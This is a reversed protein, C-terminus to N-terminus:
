TALVGTSKRLPGTDSGQHAVATNIGEVSREVDEARFSGLLRCEAYLRRDAVIAYGQCGSNPRVSCTAGNRRPLSQLANKRLLPTAM